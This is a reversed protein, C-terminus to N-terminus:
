KHPTAPNVENLYVVADWERPAIKIFYDNERMVWDSMFFRLGSASISPLQLMRDWHLLYHPLGVASAIRELGDEKSEPIPAITRKDIKQWDKWYRGGGYLLGIIFVNDAGLSQRIMQGVPTLHGWTTDQYQTETKTHIVHNIWIIKVKGGPQKRQQTELIWMLNRHMAIERGNLGSYKSTNPPKSRIDSINRYYNEALQMSVMGQRAWEFDDVNSQSIYDQEHTSFNNVAEDLLIALQAQELPSLKDNYNLRANETMISLFPQLQERLTKAYEADVEDLYQVIQDLPRKWNQYFGGIDVGYYQLRNGHTQNYSRMWEIM